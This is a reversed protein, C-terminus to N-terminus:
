RQDSNLEHVTVISIITNKESINPKITILGYDEILRGTEGDFKAGYEREEGPM